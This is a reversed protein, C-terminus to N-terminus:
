DNDQIPIKNAFLLYTAVIPLAVLIAHYYVYINNILPNNLVVFIGIINIVVLSLFLKIAFSKFVKSGDYSLKNPFAIILQASWLAAVMLHIFEGSSFYSNLEVPVVMLSYLVYGLLFFFHKKKLVGYLAVLVPILPLLSTIFDM